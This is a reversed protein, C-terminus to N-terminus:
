NVYEVTQREPRTGPVHFLDAPQAYFLPNILLKMRIKNSLIRNEFTLEFSEARELERHPLNEFFIGRRRRCQHEFRWRERQQRRLLGRTQEGSRDFLPLIREGGEIRFRSARDQSGTRRLD